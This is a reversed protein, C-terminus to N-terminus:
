CQDLDTKFNFQVVTFQINESSFFIAKTNKANSHKETLYYISVYHSTTQFGSNSLLNSIPLDLILAGQEPSSARAQSRVETGPSGPVTSAARVPCSLAPPLQEWVGRTGWRVERNASTCCLDSPQMLLSPHSCCGELSPVNAESLFGLSSARPSCPGMWTGNGLQRWLQTLEGTVAPYDTEPLSYQLSKSTLVLFDFCTIILYYSYVSFLYLSFTLLETYLLM